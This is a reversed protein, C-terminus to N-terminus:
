TGAATIAITLRRLGDIQASVLDGAVVPGVGAPISGAIPLETAAVGPLVRQAPVNVGQV